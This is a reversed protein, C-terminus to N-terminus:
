ATPTSLRQILPLALELVFGGGERPGAAFDGGLQEARERLGLLGFGGGLGAAAAPGAGDDLVRLRASAQGYELVVEVARAGAHKQANTLGEQAARYLSLASAPPLEAPAGLLSFTAAIGAHRGFDRVLAAIAQDLTRQDLPTRRLAAVSRRVEDLAAQAEERALGIAEAARAPDREILKGAAQLQVNLVTLHHGLGDHIERALRVREEAAALGQERERAAALEANAAQLRHALAEARATQQGYRTILLSFTATFLTGLGVQIITGVLNARSVGALALLAMWGASVVLTYLLALRLPLNVFAQSSLMFLLFPFLPSFGGLWNAALFLAGSAGFLVLRARAGGLARELDALTFNLALLGVLALVTGYFRWAAVAAGSLLIYSILAALIMAYAVVMMIGDGRPLLRERLWARAGLGRGSQQNQRESM